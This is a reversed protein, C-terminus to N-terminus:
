PRCYVGIDMLGLGPHYTGFVGVVQMTPPCHLQQTGRRMQGFTNGGCVSFDLGSVGDYDAGVEFGPCGTALTGTAPLEFVSGLGGWALIGTVWAQATATVGDSCAVPGFAIPWGETYRSKYKNVFSGQPCKFDFPIYLATIPTGHQPGGM